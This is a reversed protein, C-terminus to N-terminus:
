QGYLLGIPNELEPLNMGRRRRRRRKGECSGQSNKCSKEGRKGAKGEWNMMEIEVFDHISTASVGISTATNLSGM